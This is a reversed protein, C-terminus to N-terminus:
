IEASISLVARVGLERIQKRKSALERRQRRVAGLPTRDADILPALRYKLPPSSRAREVISLPILRAAVTPL